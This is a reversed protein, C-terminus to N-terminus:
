TLGPDHAGVQQPRSRQRRPEPTVLSALVASLSVAALLQVPAGFSGVGLGPYTGPSFAAVVGAAVFAAFAALALITHGWRRAVLALPLFVLAAPGSVLFVVGFGLVALIIWPPSPRQVIAPQSRRGWVLAAFIALLAMLAGGLFLAGRYSHDSTYTM